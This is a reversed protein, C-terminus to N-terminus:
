LNRDLFEFLVTEGNEWGPGKMNGHGGGEAVFMEVEKGSDRLARYMVESHVIPVQTDHDGHMLLVSADIESAVYRPSRDRKSGPDSCTGHIYNLVGQSLHENEGWLEIDTVPYMAVIAKVSKEISGALLAVQGGQSGGILGIRTPDIHPQRALWRVANAVDTPQKLGCDDAGGTDPWGRMTVVLVAYGRTSAIEKAWYTDWEGARWSYPKFGHVLVLAPTKGLANEPEYLVAYTEIRDSKIRVAKGGSADQGPIGPHAAHTNSVSVVLIAMFLVHLMPKKPSRQALRISRAAAKAGGRGQSWAHALDICRPM